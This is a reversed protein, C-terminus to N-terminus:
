YIVDRYIKYCFEVEEETFERLSFEAAKVIDMYKNWEEPWVVSFNEKLAKELEADTCGKKVMNSFCLKRYIARNLMKIARANGRRKREKVIRRHFIKELRFFHDVLTAPSLLVLVIVIIAAIILLSRFITKKWSNQEMGSPLEPEPLIEEAEGEGKVGEIGSENIQNGLESIDVMPTPTPTPTPTNGGPIITPSILPSEDGGTMDSTEGEGGTPVPTLTIGPQLTPANTLTPVPTPTNTPTPTPTNTPTPTPTPTNTPAPTPTPTPLLTSYGSTVEVPVWGIGDLYVEAWAHAQNDLIEATFNKGDEEFSNRSVVYGSAYRAPVGLERLIMVSASAYHMCYGIRGKGLFFEIPDEGWPLRPPEQSYITNRGLWDAVLFAKALRKENESEVKGLSTRNLDEAALEAAVQKVTDMNEPVTLYQEVVYAEYGPEWDYPIGQAFNRLRTDYTGGYIWLTGSIKETSLRKKYNGEEEAYVGELSEEMFYPLYAKVTDPNCYEINFIAGTHHLSLHKVNYRKKIKGIGLTGLQEAFDEPAIDEARCFKELGATNREWIGNEYVDAYFGKLYMTTLPKEDMTVLLVPIDEFVPSRNSLQEYNYDTIGLMGEIKKEVGGPDEVMRWIKWDAVSNATALVVDEAKGAYETVAKEASVKGAASIVLCVLVSLLVPIGWGFRAFWGRKRKKDESSKFDPHNEGQNLSVLIGIAMWMVGQESPNIGLLLGASLLLLPVVTMVINKGALKAMWFFLLVATLLVTELFFGAYEPSGEPCFWNSEFYVNWAELYAYAVNWFGSVLRELIEERFVYRVTFWISICFVGLRILKAPVKKLYATVEFMVSYLLVLGAARLIFAPSLEPLEYVMGVMHRSSYLFLLACLLDFVVAAGVAVLIEAFNERNWQLYATNKWRLGRRLKM